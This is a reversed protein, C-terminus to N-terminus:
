PLPQFWLDLRGFPRHSEDVLPIKSISPVLYFADRRSERPYDSAVGKGRTSEALLPKPPRDEADRFSRQDRDEPDRASARVRDPSDPRGRGGAGRRGRGGRAFAGSSTSTKSGM